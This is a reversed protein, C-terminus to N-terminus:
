EKLGDAITKVNHRMMELYTGDNPLSDSFLEGAIRVPLGKERAYKQLIRLDTPDITSEIFLATTKSDLTMKLLESISKADPMNHTDIGHVSYNKFKYHDAFYSFGSHSTILIRKSPVIQALAEQIEKDLNRLQFSYEANNKSIDAEWEPHDTLIRSAMGGAIRNWLLPNQWVHPDPTKDTQLIDTPLLSESFDFIKAEYDAFSTEMDHELDLGHKFILDAQDLLATDEPTLKYGHPDIGPALLSTVSCHDGCINRTLDALLPTTTVVKLTPLEAKPETPVTTPAPKPQCGTVFLTTLVFIASIYTIKNM